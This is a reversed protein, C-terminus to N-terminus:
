RLVELLIKRADSKRIAMHYGRLRVELPDRLLARRILTITTGPLFGLDFLRQQFSIEGDIRAITASGGPALDELTKTMTKHPEENINLDM